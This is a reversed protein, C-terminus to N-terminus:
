PSVAEFVGQPLQPDVSEDLVEVMAVRIAKENVGPKLRIILAVLIDGLRKLPKRQVTFGSVTSVTSFIL